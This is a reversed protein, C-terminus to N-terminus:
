SNKIVEGKPAFSEGYASGLEDIEVGSLQDIVADLMLDNPPPMFDKDDLKALAMAVRYYGLLVPNGKSCADARMQERASLPRLEATRGSSLKVSIHEM